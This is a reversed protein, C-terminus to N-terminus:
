GWGHQISAGGMLDALMLQDVFEIKEVEEVFGKKYIKTMLLIM